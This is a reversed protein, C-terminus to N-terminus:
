CNEIVGERERGLWGAEGMSGELILRRSDLQGAVDSANEITVLNKGRLFSILFCM